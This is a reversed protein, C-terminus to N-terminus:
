EGSNSDRAWVGCNELPHPSLLPIEFILKHDIRVRSNTCSNKVENSNQSNKPYNHLRTFPARFHPNWLFDNIKFAVRTLKRVKPHHWLTLISISLEFLNPSLESFREKYNQWYTDCRSAKTGSEKSFQLVTCEKTGNSSNWWSLVSLKQM